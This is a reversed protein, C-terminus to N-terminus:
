CGWSIDCCSLAIGPMGIPTRKDRRHEFPPWIQGDVCIRIINIISQTTPSINPYPHIPNLLSINDQSDQLTGILEVSCNLKQVDFMM